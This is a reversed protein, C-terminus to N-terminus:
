RPKKSDDTPKAATERCRCRDKEPVGAMVQNVHAGCGTWTVKGCQNCSALRCM